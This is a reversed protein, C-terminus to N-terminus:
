KICLFTQGEKVNTGLTFNVIVAIYIHKPLFKCLGFSSIHFFFSLALIVRYVLGLDASMYFVHWWNNGVRYVCYNLVVSHQCIDASMCFVHWWNNGVMYMCYKLVVSHQCIDASM